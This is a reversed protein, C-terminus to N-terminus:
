TSVIENELLRLATETAAARVEARGREGYLGQWSFATSGRATGFWVLGVPKQSTGGSPGALGTVSVAVDALSRDLAGLAMAMAVAESVAGHERLLAAPVGLLQEKAENSYTIFGREYVDSSGPIETLAAGILGGTCSEATVIRLGRERASQLVRAALEYLDATM